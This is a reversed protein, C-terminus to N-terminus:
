GVNTHTHTRARVCAKLRSKPYLLSPLSTIFHLLSSLRPSSPMQWPLLYIITSNNKAQNSHMRPLESSTFTYWRGCMHIYYIEASYAQTNDGQLRRCLHMLTNGHHQHQPLGSADTHMLSYAFTDTVGTIQNGASTSQFFWSFLCFRTLKCLAEQLM